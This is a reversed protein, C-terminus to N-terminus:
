DKKNMTDPKFAGQEQIPNAENYGKKVADKRLTENKVSSVTEKKTTTPAIEKKM